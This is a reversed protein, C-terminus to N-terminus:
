EISFQIGNFRRADNTSKNYAEYSSWKTTKACYKTSWSITFFENYYPTYWYSQNCSANSKENTYVDYLACFPCIWYEFYIRDGPCAIAWETTAKDKLFLETEEPVIEANIIDWDITLWTSYKSKKENHYFIDKTWDEHLLWLDIYHIFPCKQASWTRGVESRINIKNWCSCSRNSPAAFVECDALGMPFQKIYSSIKRGIKEGGNFTKMSVVNYPIFKPLKWQDIEVIESIQHEPFCFRGYLKFKNYFSFYWSTNETYNNPFLIEEDICKVIANNILSTANPNNWNRWTYYGSSFCYCQTSWQGPCDCVYQSSFMNYTSGDMPIEYYGNASTSTTNGGWGTAYATASAWGSQNANIVFM